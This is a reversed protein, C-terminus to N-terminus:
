TLAGINVVILTWPVLDANGLALIRAALPYLIRQYRYAPVDTKTWGDLPDLAIQFAFQGDYGSTGNPLGPDYRSGILVFRLPDFNNRAFTIAVYLVGVIVAIHWPRLKM